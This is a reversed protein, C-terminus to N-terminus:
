DGRNGRLTRVAKEMLDTTQRVMDIPDGARRTMTMWVRLQRFDPHTQLVKVEEPALMRAFCNFADWLGIRLYREREAVSLANWRDIDYIIPDM